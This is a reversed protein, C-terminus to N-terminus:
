VEVLKYGELFIIVEVIRNYNRKTVRIANETYNKVVEVFYGKTEKRIYIDVDSKCVALVNPYEWKIKYGEKELLKKLTKM